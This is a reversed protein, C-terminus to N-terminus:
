KLFDHAVVGYDETYDMEAYWAGTCEVPKLPALDYIPSPAMEVVGDGSRVVHFTVDRMAPAADVLQLVDWGQGDIRPIAKLRWAPTLAPLDAATAPRHMTSRLSFVDAGALRVTAALVREDMAFTVDAAVKPTGYIERGAPISSRSNLYAILCLNGMQTKWQCRVYLGAEEFAGYSSSWPVTLGFALCQGEPDPSFGEPLYREVAAPDARFAVLQLRVGRYLAPPMPYYGCFNPMGALRDFPISM